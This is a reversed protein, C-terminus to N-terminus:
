LCMGPKKVPMFRRVPYRRRKMGTPNIPLQLAQAGGAKADHNL